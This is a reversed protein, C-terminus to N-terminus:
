PISSQISQVGRRVELGPLQQRGPPWAFLLFFMLAVTLHDDNKLKMLSGLSNKGWVQPVDNIEFEQTVTELLRALSVDELHHPEGPKASSKRFRRPLVDVRRDRYVVPIVINNLIVHQTLFCPTTSPAPPLCTTTRDAIPKLEIVNHTPTESSSNPRSRTNVRQLRRSRCANASVICLEALIQKVAGWNNPVHQLRHTNNFTDPHAHFVDELMMRKVQHGDRGKWLSRLDIKSTKDELQKDLVQICTDRIAHYIDRSIYLASLFDEDRFTGNKGSGLLPETIYWTVPKQPLKSSPM